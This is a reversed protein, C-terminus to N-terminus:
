VNVTTVPPPETTVPPLEAIETPGPATPLPTDGGSGVFAGVIGGAAAAGVVVAAYALRRRARGRVPRPASELSRSPREQPTERIARTVAETSEAFAHCEGCRALHRWLLLRELESLEGDLRLSVWERARGCGRERDRHTGIM